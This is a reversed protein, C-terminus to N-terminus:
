ATKISAELQKGFQATQEKTMNKMKDAHVKGGHEMAKRIVEEKTAGTAVFNCNLGLDKCTFKMMQNEGQIHVYSCRAQVKM